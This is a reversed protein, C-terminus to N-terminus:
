MRKSIALTEQFRIPEWCHSKNGVRAIKHELSCREGPWPSLFVLVLCGTQKWTVLSIAPFHFGLFVKSPMEISLSISDYLPLKVSHFSVQTQVWLQSKLSLERKASMRNQSISNFLKFYLGYIVVSKKFCLVTFVFSLIRRKPTTMVANDLFHLYSWAFWLVDESVWSCNAPALPFNFRALFYLTASKRRKM